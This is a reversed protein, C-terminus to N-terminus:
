DTGRFFEIVSLFWGVGIPALLLLVVRSGWVSGTAYAYDIVNWFFGVFLVFFFTLFPLIVYNEPQTRTILGLIVGGIVIASLITTFVLTRLSSIDANVGTNIDIGVYNLIATTGTPIGLIELLIIMGVMMVTYTYMKM